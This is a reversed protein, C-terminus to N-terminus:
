GEPTAVAVGSAVLAGIEDDSYGVERLVEVTHEGLRPAPLRGDDLGGTFQLPNRVRTYPGESPHEDRAFLGVADLHPDTLLDDVTRVPMAPVDLERLQAIWEDTTRTVLLEAVMSYLADTNGTRAGHDAFRPDDSLEPRGILEFFGRWHRDDYFVVSLWGDATRFPRRDASLVREYGSTGIPPDFTRGYLHELLVFSTFVEFMPVEIATGEGTRDRQVLAACIAGFAMLGATKDAVVTRVYELREPDQSQLAVLGSAAQIVDDYAPLDAYPGGSGFGFVACHVLRPNRARTTEPDAGIRRAAGPRMNHVLVDASDVLRALADRGAADKLDLCVDRKNRGVALFLPGMAPTPGRGVRRVIEGGPAEVKVVDAGLDALLLTGYPGSFVTTLDVVRVGDLPGAV